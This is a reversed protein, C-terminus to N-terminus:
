CFPIGFDAERCLDPREAEEDAFIDLQYVDTVTFEAATIEEDHFVGLQKLAGVVFSSPTFVPKGSYHDYRWDDQEPVAMLELLSVKLEDAAFQVIQEIKKPKAFSKLQEPTALQRVRKDLAEILQDMVKGGAVEPIHGSYQAYLRLLIPISEANIPAPFSENATDVAAFFAAVRSYPLNM